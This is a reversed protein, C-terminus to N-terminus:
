GLRVASASKDGVKSAAFSKVFSLVGAAIAAKVADGVGVSLIDM